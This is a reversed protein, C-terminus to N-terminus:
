RAMRKVKVESRASGPRARDRDRYSGAGGRRNHLYGVDRDDRRNGCRIELASGTVGAARRQDHGCIALRRMDVRCGALVAVRTCRVRTGQRGAGDTGRAMCGKRAISGMSAIDAGIEAQPAVIGVRDDRDAAIGTVVARRGSCRVQFMIAAGCGTSTVAIEADGLRKGIVAASVHEAAAVAMRHIPGLM